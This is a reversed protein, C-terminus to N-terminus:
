IYINIKKKRQYIARMQMQLTLSFDVSRKKGKCDEDQCFWFCRGTNLFIYLYSHNSSHYGGNSGNNFPCRKSRLPIYVTHINKFQLYDFDIEDIKKSLEEKINKWIPLGFFFQELALHTHTYMKIRKKGTGKTSTNKRKKVLCSESSLTQFKMRGQYSQLVLLDEFPPKKKSSKPFYFDWLLPGSNLSYKQNGYIRFLKHTFYVSQDIANKEKGSEVYKFLHLNDSEFWENIVTLVALSDAFLHEIGGKMIKAVVHWSKKNERHSKTVLLECECEFKKCLFKHFMSSIKEGVDEPEMASLEYEKWDCPEKFEIDLYARTGFHKLMTKCADVDSHTCRSSPMLEYFCNQRKQKMNEKMTKYLAEITMLWYRRIGTGTKPNDEAIYRLSTNKQKSYCLHM